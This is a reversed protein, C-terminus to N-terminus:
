RHQGEVPAAVPEAIAAAEIVARKGFQALELGDGRDTHGIGFLFHVLNWHRRIVLREIPDQGLAANDFRLASRLMRRRNRPSTTPRVPRSATARTRGCSCCRWAGSRTTMLPSFAACPKPMVSSM